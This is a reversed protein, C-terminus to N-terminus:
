GASIDVVVDEPFVGGNAVFSHVRLSQRGAPRVMETDVNGSYMHSLLRLGGTEGVLKVVAERFEVAAGKQRGRHALRRGALAREIKAESWGKRQYQERQKPEDDAPSSAALFLDCSCGDHTIEFIQDSKPFAAAVSPNQCPRVSFGPKAGRLAHVAAAARSAPVGLTVFYCM